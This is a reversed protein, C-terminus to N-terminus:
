ADAQSTKECPIMAMRKARLADLKTGLPNTTSPTFLSNIPVTIATRGAPLVLWHRSAPGIGRPNMTPIAPTQRIQWDAVLRNSDDDMRAPKVAVGHKAAAADKGFAKFLVHKRRPRWSRRPEIMDDMTEPKRQATPRCGTERPTQHQRDAVIRQQTVHSPPSGV